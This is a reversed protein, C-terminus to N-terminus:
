RARREERVEGIAQRIDKDIEKKSFRATKNRLTRITTDFRRQWDDESIIQIQVRQKDKLRLKKVPKFVGEEYIAEIVRTM